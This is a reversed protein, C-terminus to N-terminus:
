EAGSRYLLGIEWSSVSQDVAFDLAADVTGSVSGYARSSGCPPPDDSPPESATVAFSGGLGQVDNLDVDGSTLDTMHFHSLPATADREHLIYTAAGPPDLDVLEADIAVTDSSGYRTVNLGFSKGGSGHGGASVRSLRPCRTTVDCDGRLRTAKGHWASRTFATSARGTPNFRVQGSSRAQPRATRTGPSCAADRAPGTARFVITGRLRGPVSRSERDRSGLSGLDLRGARLGPRFSLATRPARYQYEHREAGATLEIVVITDGAPPKEAFLSVAYGRFPQRAKLTVTRWTAAGTPL